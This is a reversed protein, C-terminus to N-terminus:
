KKRGTQLERFFRATLFGFLGIRLLLGAWIDYPTGDRILIPGVTMIAGGAVFGLSWREGKSIEDYYVAVYWAITAAIGASALASLLELM